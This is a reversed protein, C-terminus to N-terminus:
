GLPPSNAPSPLSRDSPPFQIDGALVRHEKGAADRVLLAGAQDLGLAIGSLEGGRSAATIEEGLWPAYASWAEPIQAAEGGALRDLWTELQVLVRDLVRARDLPRGAALRLSTATQQLEGPFGTQNVNLGIGLIAFEVEGQRLVTEVLIGALKRGEYLLDNPWKLVPRAPLLDQCAEALAVGAALSLPPSEFVHWTTRVVVSFYLNVGAPSQWTRALRGRGRTQEDAAVVAGHPAGATAWKEARANTSDIRAAFEYCRGLWRTSLRPAALSDSQAATM